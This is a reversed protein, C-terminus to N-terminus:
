RADGKEEGAVALFIEELSLPTVEADVVGETRQFREFSLDDYNSVVAEVGWGRVRVRLAFFADLEKGYETREAAAENAYRIKRFRRKLTEM